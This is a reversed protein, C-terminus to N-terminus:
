HGEPAAFREAIGGRGFRHRHQGDLAVYGIPAARRRVNCRKVPAGLGSASLGSVDDHAVGPCALRVISPALTPRPKPRLRVFKEDINGAVILASAWYM